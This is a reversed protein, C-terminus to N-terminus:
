RTPTVETLRLPYDGGSVWGRYEHLPLSAGLYANLIAPLVDVPHPTELLARRGPSRVALFNHLKVEEPAGPPQLGHDSMLVVVATPDARIVERALDAILRNLYQLQGPFAAWQEASQMLWPTCKAPFCEPPTVDEGGPGFVIPPHPNMLHAFVFRPKPSEDRALQMTTEVGYLVRERQQDWVFGPAVAMLLPLIQSQQLLSLEFATMQGGSALEDATTLAATEWPSPIAVSRYGAARLDGLLAGQNLARMLVQYQETQDTAFPVLSEIEHLYRGHFMSALTAWTVSYNSRSDRMVEFGLDALEAEFDANDFQLYERLVDTGMYGDMLVVYINPREGGSPPAGGPPIRLQLSELVAPGASVVAVLAFMAGFIGVARNAAGWGPWSLGRRNTLKRLATVLGIWALAIASVAAFLWWAAVALVVSTALVAGLARNRTVAGLAFSLVIAGSVAIALPRWLGAAPTPLNAYSVLVYGAAFAAPHLMPVLHRLAARM